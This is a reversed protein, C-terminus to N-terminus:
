NLYETAMVKDMWHQQQFKVTAVGCWSAYRRALYGNTTGDMIVFPALVQSEFMECTIAVICGQKADEGRNSGIRKSNIPAILHSEKPYYNLFMEDMNVLKTVNAAAMNTRIIGCAEIAISLWNLPVTQSISEKRITFGHRNLTRTLWQSLAPSIMGSTIDMAKTWECEDNGYKSLLLNFCASRSLPKGTEWATVVSQKIFEDQLQYKVNRGSGITKANKTIYVVNKDKDAAKRKSQRTGPANATTFVLGSTNVDYKKPLKVMSTLPVSGYQELYQEPVSSKVDAFTFDRVFATWKPYYQTQKIWNEFTSANFGYVM